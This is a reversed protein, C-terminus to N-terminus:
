WRCEPLHVHMKPLCGYIVTQYVHVRFGPHYTYLLWLIYMKQWWFHDIDPDITVDCIWVDNSSWSIEFSLYRTWPGTVQWKVWSSRLLLKLSVPLISNFHLNITITSSFVLLSRPPLPRPPEFTHTNITLWFLTHQTTCDIYSAPKSVMLANNCQIIIHKISSFVLKIKFHQFSIGIHSVPGAKCLANSPGLIYICNNIIPPPTWICVWDM